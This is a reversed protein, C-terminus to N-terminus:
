EELFCFNLVVGVLAGILIASIITMFIGFFQLILQGTLTFDEFLFPSLCMLNQENSLVVKGFTLIIFIGGLISPM